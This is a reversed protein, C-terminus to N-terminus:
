INFHISSCTTVQAAMQFQMNKVATQIDAVDRNTGYARPDQHARLGIFTNGYLVVPLSLQGQVM